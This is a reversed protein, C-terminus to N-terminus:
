TLSRMLELELINETARVRFASSVAETGNVTMGSLSQIPGDFAIVDGIGLEHVQSLKLRAVGIKAGVSVESERLAEYCNVLTSLPRPSPSFSQAFRVLFERSARLSIATPGLKGGVSIEYALDEPGKSARVRNGTAQEPLQTAALREELDSLARDALATVLYADASQPKGKELPLGLMAGSILAKSRESIYCSVGSKIEFAVTSCDSAGAKRSWHDSVQWNGSSYWQKCWESFIKSFPDALRTDTVSKEPLWAAYNM